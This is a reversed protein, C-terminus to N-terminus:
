DTTALLVFSPRRWGAGERVPLLRTTDLLFLFFRFSVLLFPSPFVALSSIYKGSIYRFADICRYHVIAVVYVWGPCPHVPPYQPGRVKFLFFPPLSSPIMRDIARGCSRSQVRKNWNCSTYFAAPLDALRHALWSAHFHPAASLDLLAAGCWGAAFGVIVASCQRLAFTGRLCLCRCPRCSLM